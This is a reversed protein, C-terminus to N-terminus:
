AQEKMLRIMELIIKPDVRGELAAKEAEELVRDRKIKRKLDDPASEAVNIVAAKFARILEDQPVRYDAGTAALFLRMEIETFMPKPEAAATEVVFLPPIPETPGTTTVTATEEHRPPTAPKNFKVFAKNLEEEIAELDINDTDIEPPEKAKPEKHWDPPPPPTPTQRRIANKNQMYWERAKDIETRTLTRKVTRAFKLLEEQAVVPLSRLREYNNPSEVYGEDVFTKELPTSKFQYATLRSMVVLNIGLMDCLEDRRIQWRDLLEKIKEGIKVFHMTNGAIARKIELVAQRLAEASEASVVAVRIQKRKLERFVLYRRPSLLLPYKDNENKPEVVLYINRELQQEFGRLLTKFREDRTNIQELTLQDDVSLEIRDLPVEHTEIIPVIDDRYLTDM